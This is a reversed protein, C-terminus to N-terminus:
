DESDTGSAIRGLIGREVKSHRGEKLKIELHLILSLPVLLLRSLLLLEELQLPKALLSLLHLAEM